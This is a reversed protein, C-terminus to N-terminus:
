FSENEAFSEFYAYKRRTSMFSFFNQNPNSIIVTAIEFCLNKKLINNKAKKSLHNMNVHIANGLTYM